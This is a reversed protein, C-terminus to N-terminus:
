LGTMVRMDTKIMVNLTMVDTCYFEQFDRHIRHILILKFM